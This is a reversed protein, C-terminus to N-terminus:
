YIMNYIIDPTPCFLWALLLVITIVLWRNWDWWSPMVALTDPEDELEKLWEFRDIIYGVFAMVAMVALVTKVTGLVGIWYVLTTSIM